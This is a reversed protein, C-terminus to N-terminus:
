IQEIVKNVKILDFNNLYFEAKIMQGVTLVPENSGDKLYKQPKRKLNLQYSKSLPFKKRFIYDLAKRVVSLPFVYIDPEKNKNSFDVCCLFRKEIPIKESKPSAYKKQLIWTKSQSASSKVELYALNGAKDFVLIDYGITTGWQLAVMYGQQTLKSAVLFEGALRTLNKRENSVKKDM